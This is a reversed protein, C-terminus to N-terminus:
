LNRQRATPEELSLEVLIVSVATVDIEGFGQVYLNQLDPGFM